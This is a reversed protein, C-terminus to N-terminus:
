IASVKVNENVKLKKDSENKSQDFKRKNIPTSSKKESEDKKAITKKAM